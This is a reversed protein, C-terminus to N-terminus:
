GATASPSAYPPYDTYGDANFTYFTGRDYPSLPQGLRIRNPLDPNSVFHRGFAVLDANGSAIVQDATNPEFGGAAIIIGNFIKRLSESAVPAQGEAIMASGKIRPEILHLYALNFRNLLGAAHAFLADPDSDAMGNAQNAPGLRVGVRGPGWVSTVADLVEELFRARNAISGGYQDTRHNSNDQLFQDILYGNAGHLEIGDFGARRALMAAKRYDDVVLAIEATRLARHPSPQIWGGPTSTLVSPNEWYAANVSASVPESGGTVSVHSSRGTHWLQAFVFGQKAHIASTIKKWGTVQRDTFLGPAGYWGRAAASIPAAEAIILGGVSARQSYYELMLDGPIDDPQESRSRTLPAMVVRHALAIDGLQIPSFLNPPASV